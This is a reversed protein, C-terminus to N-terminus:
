RAARRRLQRLSLVHLLISSPVALAPILVTPYVGSTANPISPVIVQFPGPAIMLGISIAVAFDLLGFVNWAIAAKRGETSGSALWIATPVAMLGTALDGIGAPLAFIGPVRNYLWGVLFTMGFVRYLQLAVLWTAPMADILQALRRSRLLIPVGIIVPLFIAAPTLPLRVVGPKFVDNIAASWVVALWLTLPIMVALWVNRRQAATLEARELGLWLGLAVLVHIFIRSAANPVGSAQIGPLWYSAVFWAATVPVIWTLAHWGHREAASHTHLTAATM